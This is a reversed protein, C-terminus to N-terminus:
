PTEGEAAGRDFSRVAARLQGPSVPKTLYGDFGSAMGLAKEESEAFATLAVLPSRVGARRLDRCLAFGDMGPLDLDSLILDFPEGLARARGLLGSSEHTVAHGERELVARFFEANLPEDEILLIRM